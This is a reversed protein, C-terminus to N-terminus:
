PVSSSGPQSTTSRLLVAIRPEVLLERLREESRLREASVVEDQLAEALLDYAEDSRGLGSLAATLEVVIRPDRPSVDRASRLYAVAWAPRGAEMQTRALASLADSIEELSALPSQQIPPPVLEDVAHLLPLIDNAMAPPVGRQRIEERAQRLLRYLHTEAPDDRYGQIMVQLSRATNGAAALAM